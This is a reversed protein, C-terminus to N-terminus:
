KHHADDRPPVTSNDPPPRLNRPENTTPVTDRPMPRGYTAHRSCGATVVVLLAVLYAGPRHM